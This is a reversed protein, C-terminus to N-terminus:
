VSHKGSEPFEVPCQKFSHSPRHPPQLLLPWERAFPGKSPSLSFHVSPFPVVEGEARPCKRSPVGPSHLSISLAFEIGLIDRALLLFYLDWLFQSFFPSSSIKRLLSFACYATCFAVTVLFVLFFGSTAFSHLICRTHVKSCFARHRILRSTTM